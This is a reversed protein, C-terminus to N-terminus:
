PLRLRGPVEWAAREIRAADPRGAIIHIHGGAGYPLIELRIEELGALDAAPIRWPRGNWVADSVLRDGAWARALDGHWELVLAGAEPVEGLSVRAVAAGTWDTPISARGNPAARPAPPVAADRVARVTAAWREARVAGAHMWGEDQLCWVETADDSVVWGGHVAGSTHVLRGRDVSLALATDPDVVLVRATVSGDRVLEFVDGFRLSSKEGVEADELDVMVEIGATAAVVLLPAQRWTTETVPQATLTRIRAAGLTWGFPWAFVAGGPIDVAPFRAAGDPLEIDFVVGAHDAMVTHAQHNVVFVFGRHGDSRVSWRLSAADDHTPVHAPFTVPMDALERGWSALLAHQHRLRAWSERVAGDLTVAAGFDYGIEIFDNPEGLAHQEQLERRPNRGDAYMYYGQWSSGSALKAMALAEVDRATVAPRRHYASVMGAGLECTLYPFRGRVQDAAGRADGRHDAGISDDDRRPTIEFNSLSRDDRADSAEVWFSDAYGGYTPVVTPPLQAGGWGTAVWLPASIGVEEAIARLTALHEPRDYLENDVQVAFLDIGAIEAAIRRYWRRVEDLYAPDDSRVAIGGDVLWDPLGGHRAEAHAYPGIRLVVGLGADRAHELFARLDRGGCFDAQGRVPEHHNWLVYTAVHTLGGAAAAHLVRSWDARPIRSYHIEGSRPFVPRGDVLVARDTMGHGPGIGADLVPHADSPASVSVTYRQASMGEM